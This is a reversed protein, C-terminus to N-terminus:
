NRNFIKLILPSSHHSIIRLVAMGRPLEPLSTASSNITKSVVMRGDLTYVEITAGILGDSVTLVRASANYHASPAVVTSEISSHGFDKSMYEDALSNLYVELATYGDANLTNNDATDPNLGNAKEWEDPMGDHDTDAPAPLSNLVPWGGVDEPSDIIGCKEDPRNTTKTQRYYEGEYTAKGDRVDKIIRTDVADRNPKSCGAHDLVSAYAENATQENIPMSEWAKDARLKAIADDGGAPQVGGAWNDASINDYGEVVNGNVYWQGFDDDDRNSPNAIRYMMAGTGTAPGPKYYNNVFNITFTTNNEDGYAEGGYSSNYGWNYIVNNRYDNRGGGSAWRPNRSAHDAILNHHYTSNDSGWIGGFGHNGKVHRSQFLSETIMCWQITVNKCNYISMTEDVSWSASVHDLIINKTGRSSIADYEGGEDGLRVRIYRIIVENTNISLPYKKICIGDGPATQGAITIYPNRIALPSELEITGSVRFVITRPGRAEIGERLSGPGNDNLNTVEYVTGGRGGVTYKGYGEATPFAILADTVPIEPEEGIEGSLEGAITVDSFAILKGSAVNFPHFTLEFTGEIFGVNTINITESSYFGSEENNRNPHFGYMLDHTENGVTYTIDFDGNSTGCISSNFSISTPKFKYGDKVTVKFSVTHGETAAKVKEDVVTLGTMAIPGVMRAQNVTMKPGVSFEDATLYPAADSSVTAEYDPQLKNDVTKVMPWTVSCDILNNEASLSIAIFFIAILSFLHKM